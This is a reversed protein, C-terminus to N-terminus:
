FIDLLCVFGVFFFWSFRIIRFDRDYRGDYGLVVECVLVM